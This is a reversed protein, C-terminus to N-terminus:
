VFPRTAMKIMIVLLVSLGIAAACNLLQKTFNNGNKEAAHKQYVESFFHYYNKPEYKLM